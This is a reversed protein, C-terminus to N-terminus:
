IWYTLQPKNIGTYYLVSM